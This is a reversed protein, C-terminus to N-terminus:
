SSARTGQEETKESLIEYEKFIRPLDAELSLMLSAPDAMVPEISIQDFGLDYLHSVDNPSTLNYKTYTGRVHM